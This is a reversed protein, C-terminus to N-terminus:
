NQNQSKEFRANENYKKKCSFYEHTQTCQLFIHLKKTIDCYIFRYKKNKTKKKREIM